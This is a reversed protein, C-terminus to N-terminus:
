QEVVMLIDASIDCYISSLEYLGNLIPESLEMMYQNPLPKLLIGNRAIVKYNTLNLLQELSIFDFVRKHEVKIDSEGLEWYNNLIGMKVGLSRHLSKANPVTIILRGKLSLWHHIKELLEYPKNLHELIHLALITDFLHFFNLDKFKDEIFKFKSKDNLRIKLRDLIKRSKDVCTIYKFYKSLHSEIEGEASPGLVLCTKGTYFPEIKKATYHLLKSHFPTYYKNEAPNYSTEEAYEMTNRENM